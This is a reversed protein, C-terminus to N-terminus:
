FLYHPSRKRAKSMLLKNWRIRLFIKRLLFCRSILFQNELIKKKVSRGWNYVMTYFSNGDMCAHSCQIGLVSGDKLRTIKVSLPADIGRKIRFPKIEVSFHNIHDDKKYKRYADAILLDPENAVIFPVGDNTLHIGTKDKMRGSLHPYYNLLKKLGAKMVNVDLPVDFIWTGRIVMPLRSQDLVSFRWAMSPDINDEARIYEIIANKNLIIREKINM